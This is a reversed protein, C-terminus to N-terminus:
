PVQPPNIAVTSSSAGITYSKVEGPKYVVGTGDSDMHLSDTSHIVITGAQVNVIPAALNIATPSTVSIGAESFQVYQTPVDNLVGGIYLADSMDFRRWSGPNAQPNYDANGTTHGAIAAERNATVSSIDRDPFIAIGVDGVQPDLIVANAGGQLRFYPCTFITGHPLANGAGDMQNVLPLVDVFGVPSVGGANTVAKVQVLTATSIRALISWVLFSQANFPSNSDSPDQQGAFGNSASM